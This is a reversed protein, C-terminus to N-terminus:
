RPIIHREPPECARCCGSVLDVKVRDNASGVATSDSTNRCVTQEAPGLQAAAHVAPVLEGARLPMLAVAPTLSRRAAQHTANYVSLARCADKAVLADLLKGSQDLSAAAAEVASQLDRLLGTWQADELQSTSSRLVPQPPMSSLLDRADGLLQTAENRLPAADAVAVNVVAGAAIPESDPEQTSSVEQISTGSGSAQLRPEENGAAGEWSGGAAADAGPGLTSFDAASGLGSIRASCLHDLKADISELTQSQELFKAHIAEFLVQHEATKETMGSISSAWDLKLTELTLRVDCTRLHYLKEVFERYDVEGSADGDLIRYIVPLDERRVELAGMVQQFKPSGDWAELMEQLSITDSNDKDMAACIELLEIKKTTQEKIKVKQKQALDSERAEAASEVIVALILNMVGLSVSIVVLGFIPAFHPAKEIVPISVSGWDDGAVIQQFLTLTSASVSDFARSCRECGEFSLSASVPHIWEVLIISWLGLMGFLLLMGFFIARFSSGLGTILLYLERISLFLRFARFLRAIRFIRLFGINIFNGIAESIWGTLVVAFDLWNFKVHFYYCRDVYIRAAAELTYVILLTLNVVVVWPIKSALFPCDGINKTYLPYCEATIDTEYVILALNFVIVAGMFIEFKQSGIARALFIRVWPWIVEGTEPDIWRDNRRPAKIQRGSEEMIESKANRVSTKNMLDEASRGAKLIARYVKGIRPAPNVSGALSGTASTAASHESGRSCDRTPNAPSGSGDSPRTGISQSSSSGQKRM